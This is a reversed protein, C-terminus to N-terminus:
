DFDVAPLLPLRVVPLVVDLIMGVPESNAFAAFAILAVVGDM